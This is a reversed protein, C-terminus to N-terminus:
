CSKEVELIVEAPSLGVARVLRVFVEITPSRKNRELLSVYERTLLAKAALTEQTMDARQRAQKLITGFVFTVKPM